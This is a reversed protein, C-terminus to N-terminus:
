FTWAMQLGPGGNWWPLMGFSGSERANRADDASNSFKSWAIIHCVSGAILFLSGFKMETKVDDSNKDAGDEVHQYADTVYMSGIANLGLGAYFPWWGRHVLKPEANLDNMTNVMRRSGIGNLIMGGTLGISGGTQVFGNGIITGVVNTALGAWSLWSGVGQLQEGSEYREFQWNLDNVDKQAVAWSVMWLVLM